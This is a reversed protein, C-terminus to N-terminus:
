GISTNLRLYAAIVLLGHLTRRMKFAHPAFIKVEFKVADTRFYHSVRALADVRGSAFDREPEPM